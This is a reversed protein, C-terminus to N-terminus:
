VHCATFTKLILFNDSTKPNNNLCHVIQPSFDVDYKSLDTKM